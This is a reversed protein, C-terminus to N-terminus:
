WFCSFLLIARLTAFTEICIPFIMNKLLHLFNRLTHFPLLIIMHRFFVSLPVMKRVSGECIWVVSKLANSNRIEVPFYSGQPRPKQRTWQHIRFGNFLAQNNISKQDINTLCLFSQDLGNSLFFVDITLFRWSSFFFHQRRCFFPM